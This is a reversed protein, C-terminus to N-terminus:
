FQDVLERDDFEVMSHKREDNVRVILFSRHFDNNQWDLRHSRRSPSSLDKHDFLHITQELNWCIILENCM